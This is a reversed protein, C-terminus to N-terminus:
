AGDSAVPAPVDEDDEERSRPTAQRVAEQKARWWFGSACPPCFVVWQSGSSVLVHTGDESTLLALGGADLAVWRPVPPARPVRLTASGDRDVGHVLDQVPRVCCPANVCADTSGPQLDWTQRLM